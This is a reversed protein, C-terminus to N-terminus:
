ESIEPTQPLEITESTTTDLIIQKPQTLGQKMGFVASEILMTIEAETLTIGKSSLIQSSQEIAKKLKETGDLDNYVQQVFHVVDTVVQKATENNVKQEYATKLKTGIYTFLGTLFTALIPLLIDILQNLIIQWDM